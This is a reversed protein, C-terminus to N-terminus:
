DTGAEHVPDIAEESRELTEFLMQLRMTMPGVTGDKVLRGDISTIPMVGQTTSTLFAEDITLLEEERVPREDLRFGHRIALPIVKERVVGSLIETNSPHTIIRGGSVVFINSSAGETIVGDEILIAEGAGSRRAHSKALANPLLNVSKVDCRRWRLDDFTM